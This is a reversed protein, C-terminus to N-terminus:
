WYPMRFHNNNISTRSPCNRVTPRNHPQPLVRGDLGSRYVGPRFASTHGLIETNDCYQTGPFNRPPYPSPRNHPVLGYGEPRQYQNYNYTPAFRYPQHNWAPAQYWGYNSGANIAYASSTSTYGYGHISGYTYGHSAGYYYASASPASISALILIALGALLLLVKNM